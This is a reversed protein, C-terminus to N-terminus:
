PVLDVSDPTHLFGSLRGSVGTHGYQWVIKFNNKPDIVIVRNNGSDAIMVDGNPLAIALSPKNLEAAGSKPSYTWIPTGTTSTGSAADLEEVAGPHARDTVILKGPAFENAGYPAGFSLRTHSVLANTKSLVDIWGPSHETVVLGGADSGGAATIPFVSDPQAFEVPPKHVCQSTGLVSVPQHSKRSVFVVRCNGLDAIVIQGSATLHATQPNRLHNSTSGPHNPLGYTYNIRRSDVGRLLVVSRLHQTVIVSRGTKSFYADSPTIEPQEWVTQGQPSIVLMRNNNRDAILINAPVVTADSGATIYPPGTGAKAANSAAPGKPAPSGGGGSGTVLVIIVILAAVGAILILLRQRGVRRRQAREQARREALEEPSHIPEELLDHLLDESPRHLPEDLFEDLPEHLLEDTPAGPSEEGLDHPLRGSPEYPLEDPPEHPLEHPLEDPPEHSPEHPLEDPPEHSPMHPLEHPPEDPEHPPGEPPEDPPEEM